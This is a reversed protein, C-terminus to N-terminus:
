SIYESNTKRDEIVGQLLVMYNIIDQTADRVGEGKVKLEGKNVFTAIRGIKDLVRILIGMEAPVGLVRETIKFNGLADDHSSYDHNKAKIVNSCTKFMEEQLDFLDQSTFIDKESALIVDDIHYQWADKDQITDTSARYVEFTDGVNYMKDNHGCERNTKELSILTVMDGQKIDSM